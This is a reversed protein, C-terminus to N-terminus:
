DDERQFMEELDAIPGELPGGSADEIMPQLDFSDALVEHSKVLFDRVAEGAGPVRLAEQYGVLISAVAQRDPDHTPNSRAM